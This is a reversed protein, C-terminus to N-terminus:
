ADFRETTLTDWRAADNYPLASGLKVRTFINTNAFVVGQECFGVTFHFKFYFPRAVASEYAYHRSLIQNIAM